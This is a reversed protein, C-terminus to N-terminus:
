NPHHCEWSFPFDNLLGHNWDGGVLGKDMIKGSINRMGEPLNVTRGQCIPNPLSTEVIFQDNEPDINPKGSPIKGSSGM